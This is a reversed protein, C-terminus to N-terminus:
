TAKQYNVIKEEGAIRFLKEDGILEKLREIKIRNYFVPSLYSGHEAGSLNKTLSMDNEIMRTVALNKYLRIFVNVVAEDPGAELLFDLTKKLTDEDEYPFGALLDISTRIGCDRALSIMEEIDKWYEPPRRFTDASITLLYAGSSGLLEFLKRNFNGAKMYLAWRIALRESTIRNLVEISFDLDENFESDCLHLHNVGRDTLYRLEQLVDGPNRFSVQTGAETCYICGSSCGKHTEFGAIGKRRIYPAYDFVEARQPRFSDPPEGKIVQGKQRLRHTNGILHPLTKEGPGVVAIDAGLYNLIGQPDAPLASGGIIVPADTLSKIHNIYGRIDPLFYEPDPYLVSDVNRISLCVTDPMGTKFANDIEGTPDESFCLDLIRVDVGSKKLSYALYEIGLPIVPPHLYKNPNIFLVTGPNDM